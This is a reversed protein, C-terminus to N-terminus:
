DRRYDARVALERNGEPSINHMVIRLDTPGVLTIGIRWGWDPGLPVEYSGLLSVAGQGDVSGQCAMLRGSMHWSDVWAATALQRDNANGLLLLGEQAAGDHQWQYELRLFKGRAAPVVVLTSESTTDPTPQAELWLHKRGTWQGLLRDHLDTLNM